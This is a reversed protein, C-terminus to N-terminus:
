QFMATTELSPVNSSINMLQRQLPIEIFLKDPM